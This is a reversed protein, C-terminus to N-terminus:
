EYLILIDSGTPTLLQSVACLLGFASITSTDSSPTPNLTSAQYKEWFLYVERM